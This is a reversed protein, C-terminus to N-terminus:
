PRDLQEVRSEPSEGHARGESERQEGPRNATRFLPELPPNRVWPGRRRTHRFLDPMPKPPGAGSDEQHTVPRPPDPAQRDGRWRGGADSGESTEWQQDREDDDGDDSGAEQHQQQQSPLARRVQRGFEGVGVLAELGGLGLQDGDTLLPTIGLLPRGLQGAPDVVQRTADVLQRTPDIPQGLVLRGQLLQHRLHGFRQLRRGLGQALPRLQGVGLGALDVGQAGSAVLELEVQGRGLLLDHGQRGPRPHHDALGPLRDAVRPGLGEPGELQGPALPRPAVTDGDVGHVIGARELVAVVRNASRDLDLRRGQRSSTPARISTSHFIGGISFGALRM